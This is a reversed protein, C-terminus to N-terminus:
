TLRGDGRLLLGHGLGDGHRRPDDGDGSRVLLQQRRSRLGYDRGGADDTGLCKNLSDVHPLQKRQNLTLVRFPTKGIRSIMAPETAFCASGHCCGPLSTM